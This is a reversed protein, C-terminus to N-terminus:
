SSGNPFVVTTVSSGPDCTSSASSFATLWTSFPAPRKECTFPAMFVPDRRAHTEDM